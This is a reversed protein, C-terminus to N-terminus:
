KPRWPTAHSPKTAACCLDPCDLPHGDSHAFARELEDAESQMQGQEGADALSSFDNDSKGEGVVDGESRKEQESDPEASPEPPESRLTHVGRVKGNTSPESPEGSGFDFEESGDANPKPLPTERNALETPFYRNGRNPKPNPEGNPGFQVILCMGELIKVADSLSSKKDEFLTLLEAWPAGKRGAAKIFAYAKRQNDTLGVPADSTGSPTKSADDKREFTFNGDGDGGVRFKVTDPLAGRRQKARKLVIEGVRNQDFPKSCKLGWGNEVYGLKRGAGRVRNNDSHPTHDLIVVTIGRKRLPRIIKQNFKELDDNVNEELDASTLFGLSADLFVLVPEIDDVYDFLVKLSAEDLRINPDVHYYLHEVDEATCGLLKFREAAVEAGNENDLYLVVDGVKIRESALWTALWTKGEGTAAFILHVAGRLLVDQELFEPPEVGNRIAEGLKIREGLTDRVPDNGVHGNALASNDMTSPQDPMYVKEM